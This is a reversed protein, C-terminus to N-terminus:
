RKEKSKKIKEIQAKIEDPIGKEFWEDKYHEKLNSIIFNNMKSKFQALENKVIAKQMKYRKSKRIKQRATFIITSIIAIGLFSVIILILLEGPVGGSIKYIFISESNVNGLTDNAFFTITVSGESIGGWVAQDIMGSLSTIFKYTAGDNLTYWIKDLNGEEISLDYSPAAEFEQNISPANIIITPGMIDKRVMIEDWNINGSTDNAYFRITVTGNGRNNWLIQNISANSTFTKNVIGGDITYWMTDLGPYIDEVIVSFSPAIAGFLNNSINPYIIIIVPDVIDFRRRIRIVALGSSGVGLYAFDGSVYVGLAWDTTSEYIPPEPNTPNSIDIVALGYDYDAVYAYDGSVYVDRAYGTTDEYVPLGPNTPDSIDIIALGSGYDAVYAFNGCVFVGSATGATDEYVPLGPNTPDSIDIIAL